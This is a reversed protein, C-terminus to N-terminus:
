SETGKGCDTSTKRCCPSLLHWESQKSISGKLLITKMAPGEFNMINLCTNIKIKTCSYDSIYFLNGKWEEEKVPDYTEKIEVLEGMEQFLYVFM